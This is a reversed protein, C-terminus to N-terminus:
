APLFRINLQINLSLWAWPTEGTHPLWYGANMSSRAQIQSAILESILLNYTAIAISLTRFAFRLVALAKQDSASVEVALFTVLLLDRNSAAKLIPVLLVWRHKGLKIKDPVLRRLFEGPLNIDEKLSMSVQWPYSTKDATRGGIIRGKVPSRCKCDRERNFAFVASVCFLGVLITLLISRM